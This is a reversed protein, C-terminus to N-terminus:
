LMKGCGPFSSGPLQASVWRHLAHRHSIWGPARALCVLDIAKAGASILSLAASTATAGTTLVDDVIMVTPPATGSRFVGRVNAIRRDHALSAQPARYGAHELLRSDIRSADPFLKADLAEALIRCQNFGRLSLSRRASPIPVIADWDAPELRALNEALLQAAARCLRRSPRYKFISILDKARGEYEWLFRVQRFPLPFARCLQCPRDPEGSPAQCVPCSGVAPRPAPRCRHCLVGGRGPRYCVLCRPPALCDAAASFLEIIPHLM